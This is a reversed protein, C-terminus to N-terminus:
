EVGKELESVRRSLKQVENLLMPILDLYKVTQPLGDTDHVVLFPAIEKVEEAILGVSKSACEYEKYNFTVPRLEMLVDSYTDMDHINEKFRASSSVTGLQGASDILVAIADNVGTTIGRVGTVFFRNQQAQGAGTPGGIRITNNEGTIGNNMVLINSSEAGTYNLGVAGGGACGIFTNYSGTLLFKASSDGLACNQVGNNIAMAGTGVSVNATGDILLGLSSLGLAVNDTGSTVSALASSGAALNGTGTTIQTMSGFGLATNADATTLTTNGSLEGVFTNFLGRNSIFRDGGLKIIGLTGAANTDPMNINGGTLSIDGTVALLADSGIISALDGLEIDNNLNIHITNGAGTTNIDRGAVGGLVNLVGAAQTATGADTPFSNAGPTGILSATLTNTGPNGVITITTGDGVVNINGALPGVEGGTNGTLTNVDGTGFKVWNALMGKSNADGALSLLIWPLETVSNIWIDGVSYNQTDYIDPDRTNYTINPPNNANTGTYATGQRGGLRNSM